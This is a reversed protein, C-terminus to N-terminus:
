EGIVDYELVVKFRGATLAAAAIVVVLQRLATTKIYGSETGPEPATTDKRGTTSWPAGSVAAATQIDNADEIQVAVTAAGGSTLADIVDLYSNTVVAGLPLPDHALTISGIAGGHKNFNYEAVVTHKGPSSRVGVSSQAPIGEEQGTIPNQSM